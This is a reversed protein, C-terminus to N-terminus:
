TLSSRDELRSQPMRSPLQPIILLHRGPSFGLFLLLHERSEETVPGKGKRVNLRLCQQTLSARWDSTQEGREGKGERGRRDM